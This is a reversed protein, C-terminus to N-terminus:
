SCAPSVGQSIALHPSKVAPVSGCIPPPWEVTLILVWRWGGVEPVWQCEFIYKVGDYVYSAIAGDNAANCSGMSPWGAPQNVVDPSRALSATAPTVHASSSVSSVSAAPASLQNVSASATTGTLALLIAATSASLVLRRGSLLRMGKTMKGTACAAVRTFATAVKFARKM